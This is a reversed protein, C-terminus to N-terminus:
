NKFILRKLLVYFFLIGLFSMTATIPSRVFFFVYPYLMAGIVVNYNGVKFFANKFNEAYKLLRGVLLIFFLSFLGFDAYLDGTFGFSASHGEAFGSRHERIFWHGLMTPKDPWVQRPVWFYLLFSSSSGYLHDNTEFYRFMLSTMDVVGEPSMISEALITPLNSREANNDFFVFTTDKTSSSRFHKMITAGYALGFMVLSIVLYHKFALKNLYKSQVVIFFGLLSFLLPFRTGQLFLVIFVPMSLLMPIWIKKRRVYVFYYALVAPIIFGISNFISDLFFGRGEGERIVVNRGVSFMYISDEIKMFFYFIVFSLLLPTVMKTNRVKLNAIPRFSIKNNLNSLYGINIINNAILLYKVASVTHNGASKLLLIESVVIFLFAVNWTDILQIQKIYFVSVGVYMVTLYFYGQALLQYDDILLILSSLFLILLIILINKPM